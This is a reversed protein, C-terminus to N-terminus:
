EDTLVFGNNRLFFLKIENKVFGLVSEFCFQPVSAIEIWDNKPRWCWLPAEFLFSLLFFVVISGLFPTFFYHHMNDFKLFISLPFWFTWALLQQPDLHWIHSVGTQLFPPSYFLFFVIGIFTKCKFNHILLKTLHTLSTQTFLSFQSNFSLKGGHNTCTSQEWSFLNHGLHFNFHWM